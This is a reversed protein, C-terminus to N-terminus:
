GSEDGDTASTAQTSDLAHRTARDHVGRGMTRDRHRGDLAVDPLPQAGDEASSPNPLASAVAASRTKAPIGTRQRTVPSRSRVSGAASSAVAGL